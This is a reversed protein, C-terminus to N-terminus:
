LSPAVPPVRGAAEWSAKLTLEIILDLHSAPLTHHELPDNSTEIPKQIIYQHEYTYM